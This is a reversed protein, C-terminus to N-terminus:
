KPQLQTPQLQARLEGGPYRESHINVYLNGKKYQEYQEETLRAGKPVEFSSDAVKTLPVIPPGNSGSGGQHIHAATADVGSYTVKGSVTRDPAVNIMATGAASSSIPPVQQQGSLMVATDATGSAAAADQQPQADAHQCGSLMVLLIGIGMGRGLPNRWIAM